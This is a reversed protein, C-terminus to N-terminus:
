HVLYGSFGTNRAPLGGSAVASTMSFITSNSSRVDIRIQDGATLLMNESIQIPAYSGSAIVVSVAPTNLQLQSVINVAFSQDSSGASQIRVVVDFHYLGDQPVLFIGTAPNFDNGEDYLETYGTIPSIVGTSATNTGTLMGRFSVKPPAIWTADGSANSATLIKGAAPTGGEIRVTGNVDLKAGPTPNGIGVNGNDLITLRELLSAASSTANTSFTLAAGNSATGRTRIMGTYHVGTKFYIDNEVGVALTTPNEIQIIPNTAAQVHLRAAANAIGTGIGLNGATSLQVQM